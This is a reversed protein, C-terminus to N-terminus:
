EIAILRSFLKGDPGKSEPISVSIDDMESSQANASVSIEVGDVVVVGQSAPVPIRNDAWLDTLGLDASYEVALVSDGRNAANRAGFSLDLGSNTAQMAISSAPMAENADSAGLLFALGDSIGDSNTDDDFAAGGSWTSFVSAPTLGTATLVIGGWRGSNRTSNDWYYSITDYGAAGVFQLESLFVYGRAVGTDVELDSVVIDPNTGTSDSMTATLYVDEAFAGIYFYVLGSSIESIDISGQVFRGMNIVATDVFNPTQTAPDNSTWIDFRGRTGSPPNTSFDLPGINPAAGKADSVYFSYDVIDGVFPTDVGEIRNFSDNSNVSVSWLGTAPQPKNLYTNSVMELAPQAAPTTISVTASVASANRIEASDRSQVTYLYTTEPILRIDTFSPSDVWGSDFGSTVNTLLYQVDTGEPDTVATATIVASIPTLSAAPTIIAPVPPPTEDPTLTTVGTTASATNTNLNESRDRAQVTYSYTTSKTLDTDVHVPSTQWNSSTAGPNGTTEIFRYQVGNDDSAAAAVMRIITPSEATPPTEWGATAPTPATNDASTDINLGIVSEYTAGIRIEDILVSGSGYIALKTLQSQDIDFVYSSRSSRLDDRGVHDSAPLYSIVRDGFGDDEPSNNVVETHETNWVLEGVLLTSRGETAGGIRRSLRDAAIDADRFVTQLEGNMMQIGAAETGDDNQLMVSINGNSGAVRQVIASIWLSDGPEITGASALLGPVIDIEASFTDDVELRNGNADFNGFVLTIPAIGTSGTGTYSGQTGTAGSLGVLTPNNGPDAPYAFAEYILAQKADIPGLNVSTTAPTADGNTHVIEYNVVGTTPAATDTYSTADGALAAAIVQGNRKIEINPYDQANNVWTVIVNDGVVSYASATSISTDVSTTLTTLPSSPMTFELTYVNAGPLATTDEYITISGALAAVIETGNRLIRVSTPTESGIQWNLRVGTTEGAFASLRSPLVPGTLLPMEAAMALGMHMFPLINQNWHFGQDRPSEAAPQRFAYTSPGYDFSVPRTYDTTTDVTTLNDAFAPYTTDNGLAIQGGVINEFESDGDAINGSATIVVPLNAVGLGNETSRIDNIFAELNTEYNDPDTFQDNFGQHFGLGAIEYGQNNYSPFYTKINKTVDDVLRLIEAYYFGTKGPTEPTPYAGLSPPRIDDSISKGGWATKIILVQEDLLDGMAHGFGLEIGSYNGNVGFGPALNGFKLGAILRDYHVWVDTREIYDGTNSDVLFDYDGNTDNASATIYDLTGQTEVPSTTGYGEMNSQGVLIFIKVPDNNVPQAFSVHCAVLSCIFLASRLLTHAM